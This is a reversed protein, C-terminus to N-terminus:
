TSVRANEKLYEYVREVSATPGLDREADPHILYTDPPKLGPLNDRLFIEITHDAAANFIINDITPDFKRSAHRNLIHLLEHCVVFALAKHSHNLLKKNLYIRGDMSEQLGPKLRVFGWIPKGKMNIFKWEFRQSMIGFFLYDKMMLLLKTKRVTEHNEVNM